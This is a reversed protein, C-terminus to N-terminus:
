EENCRLNYFSITAGIERNVYRFGTSMYAAYMIVIIMRDVLTKLRFKEFVSLPVQTYIVGRIIMSQDPAVFSCGALWSEERFEPQSNSERNDTDYAKRASEKSGKYWADSLM